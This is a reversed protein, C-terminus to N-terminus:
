FWTIFHKSIKYGKSRKIYIPSFSAKEHSVAVCYNLDIKAIRFKHISGQIIIITKEDLPAKIYKCLNWQHSVIFKKEYKAEHTNM